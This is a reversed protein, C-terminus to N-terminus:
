WEILLGIREHKWRHGAFVTNAKGLVELFGSSAAERGDKVSPIYVILIGVM